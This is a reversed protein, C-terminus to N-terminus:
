KKSEKEVVKVKAIGDKFFIKLCEDKNIREISDVSNENEDVVLCYGKKFFAERNISNLRIIKQEFMSYYYYYKEYINYILKKKLIYLKNLLFDIYKEPSFFKFDKKLLELKFFNEDFINFVHRKIINKYDFIKEFLDKVNPCVMEAAASPTSARLDCVLDVMSWDTEHGIASIIPTKLNFIFRVIEESDFVKLDERSGGGRALILVDLCGKEALKLSKVISGVAKEGQMVSYYIKLKALPFRREIIKIIDEIAASKKASIVGIIKPFKPITKKKELSFFGEQSLKEKLVDIQKQLIGKEECKSMHIGYIQYKGYAEYVGVDGHVVVFMGNKPMFDVGDAQDKFFVCSISSKEDKLTFYMHGFSHYKFNSIEGEVNIGYFIEEFSIIKKIFGNVESVTFKHM